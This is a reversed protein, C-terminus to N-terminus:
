VTLKQEKHIRTAEKFVFGLLLIALGFYISGQSQFASAPEAALGHNEIVLNFYKPLLNLQAFHILDISVVAGGM